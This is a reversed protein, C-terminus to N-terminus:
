TGSAKELGLSSLKENIIMFGVGALAVLADGVVLFM